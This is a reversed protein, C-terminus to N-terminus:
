DLEYSDKWMKHIRHPMVKSTGSFWEDDFACSMKAFYMEIIDEYVWGPIANWSVDFEKWCRCPARHM